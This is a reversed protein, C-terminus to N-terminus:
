VSPKTRACVPSEQAGWLQAKLAWVSLRDIRLRCWDTECNELQALARPRLHTVLNSSAKPESMLAVGTTAGRIHPPSAMVQRRSTVMDHRVWASNGDPDCILRWEHTESIIQVPLGKHKYVWLVSHEASPGQRAFVKDSRLSAWRPIPYKSPTDPADLGTGLGAPIQSAVAVFAGVSVAIGLWWLRGRLFALPGGTAERPKTDAQHRGIPSFLFSFLNRM